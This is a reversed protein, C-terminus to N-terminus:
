RLAPSGIHRQGYDRHLPASAFGGDRSGPQSTRSPHRTTRLRGVLQLESPLFGGEALSVSATQPPPTTWRAARRAQKRALGVRPLGRRAPRGPFIARRATKEFFCTANKIDDDYAVYLLRSWGRSGLGILGAAPALDQALRHGGLLAQKCHRVNRIIRSASPTWVFPRAHRNHGARYERIARERERVGRFSGRRIRKRTREALFREAQNLWGAGKPTFPFQYRPHAELGQEIRPQTHAGQTDLILHGAL